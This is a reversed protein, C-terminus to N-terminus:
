VWFAESLSNRGLERTFLFTFSIAVGCVEQRGGFSRTILLMGEEPVQLYPLFSQLAPGILPAPRGQPCHM